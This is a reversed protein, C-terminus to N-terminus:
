GYRNLWREQEERLKERHTKKRRRHHANLGVDSWKGEPQILDEWAARFESMSVACSPQEKIRKLDDKLVTGAHASRWLLAQTLAEDGIQDAEIAQDLLLDEFHYNQKLAVVM